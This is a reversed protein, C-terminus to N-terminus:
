ITEEWSMIAFTPFITVNIQLNKSYVDNTATISVIRATGSGSVSITCSTNDIVLSEGTYVNNRNLKTLAEEACGDINLFIRSSKSQYLNMQNQSISSLGLNLAIILILASIIIMSVLIAAGKQKQVSKLFTKLM